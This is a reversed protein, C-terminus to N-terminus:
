DTIWEDAAIPRGRFTGTNRGRGTVIAVDGYVKVRAIDKTMNDHSLLGREIADLIGARTVIGAETTVLVWDDTVCEAIRAVDNSVMAENFRGELATFEVLAPDSMVAEM